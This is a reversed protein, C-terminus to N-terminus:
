QKEQQGGDQDGARSRKTTTAIDAPKGTVDDASDPIAINPMGLLQKLEDETKPYIRGKVAGTMEDTVNVFGLRPDLAKNKEYRALALENKLREVEMRNENQVDALAIRNQQNIGALEERNRGAMVNAAGQFNKSAILARYLADQEDRWTPTRPAFQQEMGNWETGGSAQALRQQYAEEFIRERNRAVNFLEAARREEGEQM